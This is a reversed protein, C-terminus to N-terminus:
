NELEIQDTKTEGGRGIAAREKWHRKGCKKEVRSCNQEREEWRKYSATVMIPRSRFGLRARQRRQIGTDGERDAKRLWGKM